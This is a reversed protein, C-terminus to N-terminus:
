LYEAIEKEYETRSLPCDVLDLFQDNALHCQKAMASLLYSNLEKSSHSTRTRISTLQGQETRYLFFHHHTDDQKFGKRLLAQEVKRKDRRM